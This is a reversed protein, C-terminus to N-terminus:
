ITFLSSDKNDLLDVAKANSVLQEPTKCGPIVADVSSNALCWALAWQALPVDDPLKEKLRLAEQLAAEQENQPHRHRVDNEEFSAGPTYKGSLYGSAMPVRAIVGLNQRDCEPFADEANKRDLRNYVLQITEAGVAEAQRIQDMYDQKKVSLGLHRIKGAKKQKDLMTWLKDDQFEEDTGSHFQYLDIYDTRLARLSAELQKQVDEPDYHRTRDNPGHFHHGFKSAVFWQDRDKQIAAGTLEEALHDGYCEATDIFNLNETRAAEFLGDVEKQTFTKGWEGGFQYTGIGVVSVEENTKGLTNYKM